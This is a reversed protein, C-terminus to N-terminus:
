RLLSFHAGYNKGDALITRFWYDDAPMPNGNYTGDWSDDEPTLIVLLKGYRDYIYIESTEGPYGNLKWHDNNGDGNPTFFKPFNVLVVKTELLRCGNIERVSVSYEGGKLNRFIHERSFTIGDLSYEFEGPEAIDVDIYAEQGFEATRIEFNHIQEAATLDINVKATSTGCTGNKVEYTYTGTRDTSPDFYSSGSGPLPFWRGGQEADPGLVEFLDFGKSSRCLSLSTSSGANPVSKLTIAIFSSNAGCLTSEIRYEYNGGSDRAPDFLGNGGNLSPIWYGGAEAEPGLLKFLDVPSDNACIELVADKGTEPKNQFSINIVATKKGCFNNKVTYIYEGPLDVSPNFIGTNSSLQPNWIGDADPNGELLDLLSFPASDDCISVATNLGANPEETINIQFIAEDTGCGEVAVTYIYQGPPNTAPDFFRNNALAPNWTGNKHANSSLHHSLDVVGQSKCFELQVDDGENLDENILNIKVVASAANCEAANLTYTYSNGSDVKPDFIGSGSELAPSWTGGATPEGQLRNFLDVPEANKCLSIETNQGASPVDKFSITIEAQAVQCNNGRFSYTYTGEADVETDFVSSGSSLPPSWQGGPEPNGNILLLLDTKGSSPCLSIATDEGPFGAVMSKVELLAFRSHLKEACSNMSNGAKIRYLNHHFDLPTNTISLKTSNVNSYFNNNSIDNWTVGGNSSVQWQLIDANNIEASLTTIEGANTTKSLPHVSIVPSLAPQQFHPIGEESDPCADNDSDIDVHDPLFDGDTDLFENGGNEQIDPIGDNVDDPDNIDLVGDKDTDAAAEVDTRTDCGPAGIRVDVRDPLQGYKLLNSLGSCDEISVMTDIFAEAYNDGGISRLNSFFDFNTLSNNDFFWFYFDVTRLKQFAKVEYLKQNRTFKFWGNVVELNNFADMTLLHPHDWFDLLDTPEVKNFGQFHELNMLYELDIDKVEVLNEFGVYNKPMSFQRLLVTKTSRLSPFSPISNPAGSGGTQNFSIAEAKELKEFGRVTELASNVSIGLGGFYGTLEVVEPFGDILTLQDNGHISIGVGCVLSQFGKIERLTTNEHIQTVETLTQLKRFEPITELFWNGVIGLHHLTIIKDFGSISKLLYHGEIILNNGISSIKPVNIHLLNENRSIFLDGGVYELLALPLESIFTQEIVLDGQVGTIKGLFSLDTISNGNIILNGNVVTCGPFSASFADVEQQTELRVEGPPCQSYGQFFTFLM